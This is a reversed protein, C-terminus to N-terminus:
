EKLKHVVIEPHYDKDDIDLFSPNLQKNIEKINITDFFQDCATNFTVKKLKAKACRLSAEAKAKLEELKIGAANKSLRYLEKAEVALSDQMEQLHIIDPHTLIM